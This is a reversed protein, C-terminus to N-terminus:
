DGKIPELIRQNLPDIKGTAPNYRCLWNLYHTQGSGAGGDGSVNLVFSGTEENLWGILTTHLHAPAFNRPIRKEAILVKLASEPDVRGAKEYDLGSTRRFVILSTGASATGNKVVIWNKEASISIDQIYFFTEGLAKRGGPKKTSSLWVHMEPQENPDFRIKITGDNSFVTQVGNSAPAGSEQAITTVLPVLFLLWTKATM